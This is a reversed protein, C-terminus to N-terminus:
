DGLEKQARAAWASNPYEKQLLQVLERAREPEKLASFCVAAGYLARPLEDRAEFYLIRVRLFALLAERTRGERLFCDGISNYARARTRIDREDTDSAIQTYVERAQAYEGAATLVEAQALRAERVLDSSKKATAEAALAKLAEDCLAMAESHKGERSSVSALLIKARLAWRPGFRQEDRLKEFERRAEELQGEELWCLGLGRLAFPVLRGDPVKVIVQAYARRAELLLAKDTEGMRRRCEGLFYNAHQQLWFARVGPENLAKEFYEAAERFRDQRFFVSGQRFSMPADGYTVNAVEAAPYTEDPKGDGDRDIEVKDYGERLVTVGPVSRGSELLVSDQGAAALCPAPGCALLVGWLIVVLIAAQPLRQEGGPPVIPWSTRAASFCPEVGSM